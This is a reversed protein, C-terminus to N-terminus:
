VDRLKVLINFNETTNEIKFDYQFLSFNKFQNDFHANLKKTLQIADIEDNVSYVFQYLNEYVNFDDNIHMENIQSEVAKIQDIM